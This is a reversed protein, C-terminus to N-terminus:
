HSGKKEGETIYIWRSVSQSHKAQNTAGDWAAFGISELKKTESKDLKRHFVLTWLGDNFIAEAPIEQVANLGPKTVGDLNSVVEKVIAPRDAQWKIMPMPPASPSYLTYLNDLGPAIFDSFKLAMVVADTNKESDMTPDLWELRYAMSEGDTLMQVRLFYISTKQRKGKTYYVSQMQIDTPVAKKWSIENAKTPLPTQRAVSVDLAWNPSLQMSSVYNALQWADEKSVAGDYSPMPAGNIGAMLRYYIQTPSSGARYTWGLPLSAAMIPNKWTDVLSFASSGNARGNDGHCLGCQLQDYIQRGKNLDIKVHKFPVPLPVPEVATYENSLSRIYAILDMKMKNNLNAFSPMGAHSMGHNLIWLFDEDSPPTGQETSKFKIIGEKLNRPLVPVKLADPGDGLGEAGHCRACHLTYAAKGAVPDGKVSDQSFAVSSLLGIVVISQLRKQCLSNM